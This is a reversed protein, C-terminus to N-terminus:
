CGEEGLRGQEGCPLYAIAEVELDVDLPLRGAQATTRAPPDGEFYEAYIRNFDAFRELDGLFVTTKVIADLDGGAAALIAQLNSMVRRVAQEFDGRVPEGSEPDVPVTGSVFLFDGARVALSYPGKAPPLDGGSVVREHNSTPM